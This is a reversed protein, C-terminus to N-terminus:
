TKTYIPSLVFYWDRVIGTGGAIMGIHSWKNAEYPIKAIPGKFLLGDGPKLSFIHESMPGNPYKKILLDAYGQQTPSTIPTYPRIVPKVVTEGTKSDKVPLDAKTLLCWAVDGGLIHQDSPLKFRFISSNHSVPIVKQLKLEVFENPRLTAIVKQAEAAGSGSRNSAWKRSAYIGVGTWLAFAAVVIPKKYFPVSPSSGASGGGSALRHGSQVFRICPSARIM